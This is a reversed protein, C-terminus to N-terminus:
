FLSRIFPDVLPHSFLSALVTWTNLFPYLSFSFLLLCLATYSGGFDSGRRSQSRLIGLFLHRICSEGMASGKTPEVVPARNLTGVGARLGVIRTAFGRERFRTTHTAQWVAGNNIAWHSFGACDAGTQRCLGCDPKRKREGQRQTEM